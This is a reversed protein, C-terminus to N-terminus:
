CGGPLRLNSNPVTNITTDDRGDPAITHIELSGSRDTNYALRQSDSLWVFWADFTCANQDVHLGRVVVRPEFGPASMVWLADDAIFALHQGDPSWALQVLPSYTAKTLPRLDSGDANILYVATRVGDCVELAPCEWGSFAIQKGTPSWALLGHADGDMLISKAVQNRNSGDTDIVNFGHYGESGQLVRPVYAVQSGDPSFSPDTYALMDIQRPPNLRQAEGGSVPVVFVDALPFDERALTVAVRDSRPSWAIRTNNEYPLASL